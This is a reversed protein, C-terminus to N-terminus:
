VCHRGWRTAGNTPPSNTLECQCLQEHARRARYYESVLSKMGAERLEKRGLRVRYEDRFYKCVQGRMWRDLQRIQDVDTVAAAFFAIWSRAREKPLGCTACVEPPAGQIKPNVCWRVALDLRDTWHDSKSELTREEHL